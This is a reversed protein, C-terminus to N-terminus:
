VHIHSGLDFSVNGSDAIINGSGGAGGIGAMVNAQQDVTASNSQHAYTNADISSHVHAPDVTVTNTSGASNSQDISSYAKNFIDGYSYGNGGNGVSSGTNLSPIHISDNANITITM